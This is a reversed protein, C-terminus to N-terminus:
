DGGWNTFFLSFCTQLTSLVDIIGSIILNQLKCSLFREKMMGVNYSNSSKPELGFLELKAQSGVPFAVVRGLYERSIMWKGKDRDVNDRIFKKLKKPM